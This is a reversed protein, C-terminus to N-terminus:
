IIYPVLYFVTAQPNPNGDFVAGLTRIDPQVMVSSVICNRSDSVHLVNYSDTEKADKLKVQLCHMRLPADHGNLLNGSCQRILREAEGEECTSKPGNPSASVATGLIIVFQEGKLECLWKVQGVLDNTIKRNKVMQYKIFMGHSVYCRSQRCYSSKFLTVNRPHKPNFFTVQDHSINRARTERLNDVETFCMNFVDSRMLILWLICWQDRSSTIMDTSSGSTHVPLQRVQSDDVVATAFVNMRMFAVVDEAAKTEYEHDQEMQECIAWQEGSLSLWQKLNVRGRFGGPGHRKQWRSVNRLLDDSGTAADTQCSEPQSQTQPGHDDMESEKSSATMPAMDDPGSESDAGPDDAGEAVGEADTSHDLRSGPDNGARSHLTTTSSTM